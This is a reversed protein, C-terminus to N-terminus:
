CLSAYPFDKFNKRGGPELIQNTTNEQSGRGHINLSQWQTMIPDTRITLNVLSINPFNKFDKDSFM